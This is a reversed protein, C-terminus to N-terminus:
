ERFYVNPWRTATTTGSSSAPMTRRMSDDMPLPAADSLAGRLGDSGAAHRDSVPTRKTPDQSIDIAAQASFEARFDECEAEYEASHRGIDEANKRRSARAPKSWILRKKLKTPDWGTRRAEDKTM